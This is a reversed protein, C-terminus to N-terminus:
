HKRFVPVPSYAVDATNVVTVRYEGSIYCSHQTATCDSRRRVDDEYLAMGRTQGVAKKVQSCLSGTVVTLIVTLM